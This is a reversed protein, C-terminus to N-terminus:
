PAALDIFGREVSAYDVEADLRALVSYFGFQLRNVFLMEAPMTFFEAEPAKRAAIAMDRMGDVLGAAFPKTIRCPSEFLPRFCQRTYSVAMDGLPGPKAGVMDRVALGFAAEDRALAARHVRGATRRRGDIPQICGYDLFTVRGGDHFVYNGPHPDANLKGGVLTGKFVFRWM